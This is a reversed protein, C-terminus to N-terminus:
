IYREFIADSVAESQFYGIIKLTEPKNCFRVENIVREGILDYFFLGLLLGLIFSSELIKKPVSGPQFCTGLDL